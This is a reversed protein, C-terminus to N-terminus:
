KRLRIQELEKWVARLDDALPNGKWKGLIKEIIKLYHRILKDKPANFREFVQDGYRNYDDILESSNSLTDASKVLLSDRSFSDIHKLAERKREQWSLNKNKETVSMVLEAVKEGFREEIMKRSVKKEAVSDEITDHLIGAVICDESAGALALIIGVSLPHTIYAVDKGKRKQKQYVEHTKVSFKIAKKIAPTYKM